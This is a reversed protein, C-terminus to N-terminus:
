KTIFHQFLITVIGGVVGGGAGLLSMKVKLITTDHINGDIRTDVNELAKEFREELRRFSDALNRNSEILSGIQATLEGMKYNLNQEEAM